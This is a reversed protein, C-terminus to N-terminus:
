LYGVIATRRQGEALEEWLKERAEAREQELLARRSVVLNKEQPDVEAILCRLKQNVYPATDEVRFLELQSIPLFGRIGNVEVSLGGKNTETVRAEVIMGRAVSNWDVHAEASGPLALLMVGNASDFGKVIVDIDDGVKPAGNFSDLSVVGQSRGGIDVFVDDGHISIVKGKKTLGGGSRVATSASDAAYLADEPLDGLANALEAEVEEDSVTIRRNLTPMKRIVDPRPARTPKEPTAVPPTAIPAPAPKPEVAAPAPASPAPPPPPPTPPTKPKEPAIAAGPVKQGFLAMPERKLPTVFNKSAQKASESGSQNQQTM